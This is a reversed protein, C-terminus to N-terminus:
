GGQETVNVIASAEYYGRSEVANIVISTDLGIRPSGDESLDISKVFQATQWRSQVDTPLSSLERGHKVILRASSTAKTAYVNVKM